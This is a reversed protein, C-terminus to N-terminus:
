PLSITIKDLQEMIKKKIQQKDLKPTPLKNSYTGNYYPEGASTHNVVPNYKDKIKQETESYGLSQYEDYIIEEREALDKKLNPAYFEGWEDGFLDDASNRRSYYIGTYVWRDGLCAFKYIERYTPSIDHKITINM